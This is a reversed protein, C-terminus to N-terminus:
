EFESNVLKKLDRLANTGIAKLGRVVKRGKPTLQYYKQNQAGKKKIRHSIFGEKELSNITNYVDSKEMRSLMAPSRSAKFHKLLAYPHMDGKRLHALIIIKLMSRTMAADFLKEEFLGGKEGKMM